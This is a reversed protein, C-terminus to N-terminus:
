ASREVAPSRQATTFAACNVTSDLDRAPQRPGAPFATARLSGLDLLGLGALGSRECLALVEDRHRRLGRMAQPTGGARRTRRLFDDPLRGRMAERMLPKYAKPHFREERRVSLVAEAVRDDSIPAQFPLGRAAGLQEAGRNIRAGQRIASLEAHSALDPGLPEATAAVARLRDRVAARADATLWPPFHPTQDWDMTLRPTAPPPTDLLAVTDGLWTRYDRRDLLRGFTERFTLRELLQYARLRRLATLPRTRFLTHEFVPHGVLLEDGGLGNLYVRAGRRAAADIMFLIRPAARYADSPDDLRVDLDLMGGFFAPMDETSVVEHEVGPMAELARRAWVLDEGGGPDGNRATVTLVRAPGRAAFYVQPTSDFGGSLDAHVTGGARTRVHVADDLAACLRLAGRARSLEPEPRRWWLSTTARGTRDLVVCHDPPVPRVGRWLPEESLLHPLHRLMRLALTTEDLPAGALAALVDARDCVVHVGDVAAIHVRRAGTAAGQARVQGDVSAVVTHSGALASAFGDVDAVSRAGDAVRQVQGPTASSFGFVAIRHPGASNVVVQDAPYDHVLWPHGSAHPVVTRGPLRAAVARARECDPFVLVSWVVAIEGDQEPV